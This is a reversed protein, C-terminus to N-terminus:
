FAEPTRALFRAEQLYIRPNSPDEVKAKELLQRVERGMTQFRGMPDAMIRCSLIIAHLVSLEANDKELEVAKEFYKEAKDAYHDIDNKGSVSFARAAYCYAAYYYPEWRNKEANAIREFNNALTVLNESNATDLKSINELMAKEFPSPRISVTNSQTMGFLSTVLMSCFIIITKM